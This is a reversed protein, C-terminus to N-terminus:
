DRGHTFVHRRGYFRFCMAYRLAALAPGLWVTFSHDFSAERGFVLEIGGVVEISCRSTVSLCVSLCVAMALVRALMADCPYYDLGSRRQVKDLTPRPSYDLSIM